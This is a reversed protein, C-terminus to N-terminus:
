LAAALREEFAQRMAGDEPLDDTEEKSHVLDGAITVEFRGGTSPVMRLSAISGQFQNLLM